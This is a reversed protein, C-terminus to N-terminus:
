GVWQAAYRQCHWRPSPTEDSKRVKGRPCRWPLTPEGRQTSSEIELTRVAARAELSLPSCTFWETLGPSWPDQKEITKKWANSHLIHTHNRLHKSTDMQWLNVTARGVVALYCTNLMAQFRVGFSFAPVQFQPLFSHPGSGVVQLIWVHDFKLSLTQRGRWAWAGMALWGHSSSSGAAVTPGNKWPQGLLVTSGGSGGSSRELKSCWPGQSFQLEGSYRSAQFRSSKFPAKTEANYIKPSRQRHWSHSLRFFIPFDHCIQLVALSM